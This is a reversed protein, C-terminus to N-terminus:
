RQWAVSCMWRHCEGRCAKEIGIAMVLAALPLYTVVTFIWLYVVLLGAATVIRRNETKQFYGAFALLMPIIYAIGGQALVDTLSNSFGLNSARFLGMKGKVISSYGEFGAGFIPYDLWTLLGARFDDLRTIGSSDGLKAMILTVAIVVVVAIIAAAFLRGFLSDVRRLIVCVFLLALFVLGTTSITTVVAASIITVIVKRSKEQLIVEFFLACCLAFSYMPAETFFGTNRYIEGIAPLMLKQTEYQLWCYGERVTAYGTWASELSCNPEIIHLIPGLLWMALSVAALLAMLNSFTRLFIKFENARRLLHVFGPCVALLIWFPVIARDGPLSYGMLCVLVCTCIILVIYTAWRILFVRDPVWQVRLLFYSAVVILIMIYAVDPARGTSTGDLTNTTYILCASILYYFFLRSTRVISVAHSADLEISDVRGTAAFGNDHGVSSDM